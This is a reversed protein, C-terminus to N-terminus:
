KRPPHGLTHPAVMGQTGSINSLDEILLDREFFELRPLHRDRDVPSGARTNWFTIRWPNHLKPLGCLVTPALIRPVPWEKWCNQFFEIGESARLSNGRECQAFGPWQLRFTHAGTRTRLLRSLKSKGGPCGVSIVVSHVASKVPSSVLTAGGTSEEDCDGGLVGM